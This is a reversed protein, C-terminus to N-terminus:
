STTTYPTRTQRKRCINYELRDDNSTMGGDAYAKAFRAKGAAPDVDSLKIALMMRVSANFKKWRAINGSYLIDFEKNLTGSEDFQSYAESLDRDLDEYIFQQTDYKPTFIGDDGKVAETYPIM